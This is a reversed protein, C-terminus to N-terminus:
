VDLSKKIQNEYGTIYDKKQDESIYQDNIDIIIYEFLDKIIGRLGKKFNILFYSLFPATIAIVAMCSYYAEVPFDNRVWLCWAIFYTGIGVLMLSGVLLVRRINKDLISPLIFILVMGFYLMTIPKGINYAFRRKTPFNFFRSEIKAEKLKQVLIPTEGMEEIENQIEIVIPEKKPLFTHLFPASCALIAGLYFFTFALKRNFNGLSQPM